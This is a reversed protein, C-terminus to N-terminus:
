KIKYARYAEPMVSETFYTKGKVTLGEIEKGTVLNVLKAGPRNVTIKVDQLHRLFSQLVFTDNDYTFLAVKSTTDINVIGDPNVAERIVKLVEKPYNYLNGFDDPVTIIYLRGKGYIFVSLIPFNNDEGLASVLQWTDNTAIKLQPITIDKGSAEVQRISMGNSSIAYERITAKRDTCVVNALQHFRSGLAKVLGSTVIVNGGSVLSDHIKDVLKADKAATETLLINKASKPYQPYPELPIGLMGIYNHLYDEGESHYPRYAAVGVPNGFNGAIVDMEKFSQGAVPIFSEFDKSMLSGLCFLTIERTKGFITLYAQQAYSGYNYRCEYPDFWGGGNRGPMINEFYRMIFYGLYKPLHQYTYLPDRTETGTYLMDFQKPEDELNYGTDHFHEYWNPYKIIYNVKPNVKKAPGIILEDSVEKMLKLRFEAWSKSGKANICSECKCNTFYFDDLIIEDFLEATFESVAKIRKRHEENTYCLTHFGLTDHRDTTTIGGSTRIGKNNFFEKIKLMKERDIFENSRYTELYVKDVHMHKEFVDFDKEFKKLEEIANLNGVTCYIAVNFNSYAM